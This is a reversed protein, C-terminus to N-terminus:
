KWMLAALTNTASCKIHLCCSKRSNSQRWAGTHKSATSIKKKPTSQFITKTPLDSKKQRLKPQGLISNDETRKGPNGHDSNDEEYAIIPRPMPRLGLVFSPRIDSPEIVGCSDDLQSISEELSTYNFYRYIKWKRIHRIPGISWPGFIDIIPAQRHQAPFFYDTSLLVKLSFVHEKQLM